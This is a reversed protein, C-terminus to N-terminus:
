AAHAIERLLSLLADETSPSKPKWWKAFGPLLSKRLLVAHGAGALVVTKPLISPSLVEDLREVESIIEAGHEHALSQLFPNRTAVAPLDVPLKAPHACAGWLWLGHVEPQGSRTPQPQNHLSMQIESLLRMLHGGDPGDPHRNPLLGGAIAAFPLPAADLPTTCALLLASGCAHLSMGDDQLLPNLEDCLWASDVESWSFAGEPMLRVTDRGLQAHYPSAVWCQRASAPLGACRAALLAAPSTDALAAYWGLPTKDACRFWQRRMRTLKPYADILAPHLGLGEGEARHLADTLLLLKM